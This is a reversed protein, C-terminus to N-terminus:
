VDVEAPPAPASKRPTLQRNAPFSQMAKVVSATRIELPPQDPVILADAREARLVGSAQSEVDDLETDLSAEDDSVLGYESVEVNVNNNNNANPNENKGMCQGQSETTKGGVLHANNNENHNDQDNKDEESQGGCDGTWM